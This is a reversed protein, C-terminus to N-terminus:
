DGSELGTRGHQRLRSRVVCFYGATAAIAISLEAVGATELGEDVIVTGRQLRGAVPGCAGCPLCMIVVVGDSLLNLACAPKSAVGQLETM